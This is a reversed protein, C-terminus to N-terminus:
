PDFSCLVVIIYAKFRHQHCGRSSFPLYGRRYSFQPLNTDVVVKKYDTRTSDQEQQNLAALRTERRTYSSTRGLPKETVSEGSSDYRCAACIMPVASNSKIWHQVCIESNNLLM